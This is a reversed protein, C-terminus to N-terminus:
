RTLLLINEVHLTRPFMDVPQVRRIDYGHKKLISVDRKQTEPNCSIYVIKKPNLSSLAKLFEPTSGERAPDMFVVDFKEKMQAAKLMYKTCDDAVYRIHQVQNLKANVIANRVSAKNLEVGVAEKVQDSAILSITGIGCYADLIRETGTLEAMEIAKGYLVETQDHHIQYFTSSSIRFKKGCLQDEIYGDGLGILERDSLVASSSRTNVNTMITVIQPHAKKLESIFKKREPFDAVSSVLTVLVQDLTSVRILVHRFIGKKRDEDYPAIKLKDMLTCCTKIIQNAIDPQYCCLSSNVVHHTGSIYQGAIVKGKPGRAFSAIVKSRYKKTKKAGLIEPVDCQPFLKRISDTKLECEKEYSLHSLQCGGCKAFVPCNFSVRNQSPELIQIVQAHNRDVEIIAKEGELLGECAIKRNQVYCVGKGQEDLQKCKVEARM